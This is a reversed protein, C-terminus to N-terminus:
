VDRQETKALTRKDAPEFDIKRARVDRRFRKLRLIRQQREMVEKGIVGGILLLVVLIVLIAITIGM